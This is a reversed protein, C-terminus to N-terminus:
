SVHWTVVARGGVGGGLGVDLGRGPMGPPFVVEHLAARLELDVFERLEPLGSPSEDGDQFIASHERIM